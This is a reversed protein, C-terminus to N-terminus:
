GNRVAVITIFEGWPSTARRPELQRQLRVSNKVSIGLRRFIASWNHTSMSARMEFGSSTMLYKIYRPDFIWTKRRVGNDCDPILDVDRGYPAKLWHRFSRTSRFECVLIGSPALVRAFESISTAPDWFELEGGVCVIAGFSKPQFPLRMDRSSYDALQERSLPAVQDLPLEKWRGEPIECSGRRVNLLWKKATECKSLHVELLATTKERSYALWDNIPNLDANGTSQAIDPSSFEHPCLTM